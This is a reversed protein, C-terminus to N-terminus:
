QMGAAVVRLSLLQLEASPENLSNSSDVTGAVWRADAVPQGARAARPIIWLILVPVAGFLAIASFYIM